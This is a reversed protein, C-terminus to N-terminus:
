FSLFILIQYFIANIHLNLYKSLESTMTTLFFPNILLQM